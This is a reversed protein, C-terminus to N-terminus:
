VISGTTYAVDPILPKGNIDLAPLIECTALTTLAIAYQTGFLFNYGPCRRRGFGFCIDIVKKMEAENGGYRDPNFELPNPYVDPDNLM